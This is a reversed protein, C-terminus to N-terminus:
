KRSIQAIVYVFSSKSSLTEAGGVFSHFHDGSTLINVNFGAKGLDDTVSSMLAGAADSRGYFYSRAFTYVDPEKMYREANYDSNALFVPVGRRIADATVNDEIEKIGIKKVGQNHNISETVLKAMQNAETEGGGAGEPLSGGQHGPIGKHGPFSKLKITAKM